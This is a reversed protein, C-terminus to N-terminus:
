KGFEKLYKPNTSLDAPGKVTGCLDKVLDLCSPKKNKKPSDIVYQTIAERIALSQNIGREQIKYELQCALDHPLKLSITKM